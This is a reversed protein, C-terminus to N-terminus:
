AKGMYGTGCRTCVHGREWLLERLKIVKDVNNNYESLQNEHLIIANKEETKQYKARECDSKYEILKQEYVRCEKDYNKLRQPYSDVAKKYDDKEIKNGFFATIVCLIFSVIFVFISIAVTLAIDTDTFINIGMFIVLNFLLWPKMDNFFHRFWSKDKPPDSKISAPKTPKTPEKPNIREFADSTRPDEPPLPMQAIESNAIMLKKVEEVLGSTTILGVDLDVKQDWSFWKDSLLLERIGGSFVGPDTISGSISGQTNTTGELVIMKASKWDDSKCSPCADLGDGILANLDKNM